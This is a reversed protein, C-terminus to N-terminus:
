ASGRVTINYTSGVSLSTVGSHTLKYLTGVIVAGDEFSWAPNILSIAAGDETAQAIRLEVPRQAKNWAFQKPFDREGGYVFQFRFTQGPTNVGFDIQGNIVPIAANLFQNLPYLLKGIWKQEESPFDEVLITPQVPILGM